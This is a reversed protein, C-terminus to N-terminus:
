RGGGKGSRSRALLEDLRSCAQARHEALARPASRCFTEYSRMAQTYLGVTDLTLGLNYHAEMNGPELAVAKQYEAIASFHRGLLLHCNGLNNHTRSKNPSKRACDEWMALLTHWQANRQMATGTMALLLLVALIARLANMTVPVSSAFSSM